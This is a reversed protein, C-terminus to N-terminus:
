LRMPGPSLSCILILLSLMYFSYGVAPHTIVIDLPVNDLIHRGQNRMYIYWERAVKSLYDMVIDGSDKSIHRPIDNTIGANRNAQLENVLDLGKLLERIVGLEKVVTRQELELKTWRMVLSDGDISYGWQKHGRTTRSYSLASPVKQAERGPWSRFVTLAELSPDSDGNTCM